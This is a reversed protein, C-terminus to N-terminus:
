VYWRRREIQADYFSQLLYDFLGDDNIWSLAECFKDQEAEELIPVIINIKDCMADEIDECGVAELRERIDNQATECLEAIFYPERM